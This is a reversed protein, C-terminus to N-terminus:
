TNPSPNYPSGSSFRWGDKELRDVLFSEAENIFRVSLRSTQDLLSSLREESETEAISLGSFTSM